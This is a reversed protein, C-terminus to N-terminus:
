EKVCRISFGEDMTLPVGFAASMDNRLTLSYAGLTWWYGINGFDRYDGNISISGGPLGSFGSLNTTVVGNLNPNYTPSSNWLTNNKMYEGSQNNNFMYTTDIYNTLIEFDTSSPVKWGVPCVNRLDYVVYGNYLKGYLNNNSEDNLYYTWAPTSKVNLNSWINASSVHLISDGNSFKTVKLNEKMWIQSGIVVTSYINGDVDKLGPGPIFLSSSDVVSYKITDITSIPIQLVNGNKEFINMMQTQGFSTLRIILIFGLFFSIKKSIM